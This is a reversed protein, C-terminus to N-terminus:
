LQESTTKTERFAMSSSVGQAPGVEASMSTASCGGGGALDARGECPESPETRRRDAM